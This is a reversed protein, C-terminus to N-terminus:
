RTFRQNALIARRMSGGALAAFHLRSRAEGVPTRQVLLKAGVAQPDRGVVQVATDAAVALAIGLADGAHDLLEAAVGDAQLLDVM